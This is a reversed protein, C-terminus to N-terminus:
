GATERRSFGHFPSNHPQKLSVAASAFLEARDIGVAAELKLQWRHVIAQHVKLHVTAGTVAIVEGKRKLSADHIEILHHFGWLRMGPDDPQGRRSQEAEYACYSLNSAVIVIVSEAM